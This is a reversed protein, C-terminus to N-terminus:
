ATWSVLATSGTADITVDTLRENQRDVRWGLFEGPAVTVGAATINAAGANFVSIARKDQYTQSNAIRAAGATVDVAAPEAVTVAGSVEFNQDAYDGVGHVITITIGSTARFTVRSMREPNALRQRTRARGPLWEGGDVRYEFTGTASEIVFFEGDISIPYPVNATLTISRQSTHSRM